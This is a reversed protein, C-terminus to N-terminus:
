TPWGTSIDYHEVEEVTKLMAIAMSHSGENSFAAQVHKAMLRGILKLEAYGMTQWVNNNCKFSVEKIDDPFREFNTLVTNVRDQDEKEAPIYITGPLVVGGLQTLALGKKEVDKRKQTLDAYRKAKAKSLRVSMEQDRAKQFEDSTLVALIGPTDAPIGDACTGFFTPKDTPYQSELAFSFVLDKLKPDVPGTKAPETTVPIGTSADVYTYKIFM